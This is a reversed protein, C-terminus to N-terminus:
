NQTQHDNFSLKGQTILFVGGCVSIQTFKVNLGVSQCAHITEDVVWYYEDEDWRNNWRMQAGARIEVSTFAIDGFVICGDTALYRTAIRLLLCVKTDLDFEHFIYELMEDFSVNTNFIFVTRTKEDLDDMLKKLLTTKGTGAEGILTIFGKRQTIGYNLSALAERYCANLYLFKPDSTVNFPRERLQYFDCYM